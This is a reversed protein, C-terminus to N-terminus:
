GENLIRNKHNEFILKDRNKDFIQAATINGSKADNLLKENIEYQSVLIGRDYHYRVESEHNEWETKLVKKNVGLYMAIQSISYNTSAMKEIVTYQFETLFLNPIIAPKTM